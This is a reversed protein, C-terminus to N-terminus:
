KSLSYETYLIHVPVEGYPIKYTHVYETIESAYAMSDSQLRLYSLTKQRFVRFGNHSDTLKIGSLFYTFWKGAYLVIKRGFPINTTSDKKLFRSGFFIDIEPYKQFATFFKQIENANHQGDADFCM